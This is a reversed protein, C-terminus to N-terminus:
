APAADDDVVRRYFLYIYSSVWIVTLTTMALLMVPVVPIWSISPWVGKLWADFLIVPVMIIAWGLVTILVLWLFRLLIRIRRGIVLDGAAKIAQLPYMGPLTVVVLAILTSTIWYLSLSGLLLAAAWFLMSEIGGDMIGFPLLATFGLIAVALPLLQIVILAGVLFTPLIPAGANYLGDRLKPKKGALLARLLWVSALWTSLALIVAYVQQAETPATSYQGTVGTALLLGAQGLQGWNGKFIEASTERLTSSLETYTDQSALGILLITLVAYVALLGFFIKRNQWLMKRVYNTFSWYGPLKLSRVYDRRMTRKFTRHPRRGLLLGVRRRIPDIAKKRMRGFVLASGQKAAPQKKKSVTKKAPM